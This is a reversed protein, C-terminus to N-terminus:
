SQMGEDVIYCALAQKMQLTCATSPMEKFWAPIAVKKRAKNPM